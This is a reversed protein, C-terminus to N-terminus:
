DIRLEFLRLSLYLFVFLQGFGPRWDKGRETGGQQLFRPLRHGVALAHHARPERLPHEFRFWLGVGFGLDHRFVEDSAVVTTMSTSYASGFRPCLANVDDVEFVVLGQM